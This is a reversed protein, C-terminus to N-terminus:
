TLRYSVAPPLTLHSSARCLDREPSAGVPHVLLLRGSAAYAHRHLSAHSAARGPSARILHAQLFHSSIVYANNICPLTVLIERCICWKAEGTPSPKFPSPTGIIPPMAPGKESSAGVLYAPLLSSTGAHVHQHFSARCPGRKLPHVLSSPLLLRDSICSSPLSHDALADPPRTTSPFAAGLSGRSIDPLQILRSAFRPPCHLGTSPICHNDPSIPQRLTHSAQTPPLQSTLM